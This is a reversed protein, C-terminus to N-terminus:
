VVSKRDVPDQQVPRAEGRDGGEWPMTPLLVPEPAKEMPCLRFTAREASDILAEDALLYLTPDAYCSEQVRM